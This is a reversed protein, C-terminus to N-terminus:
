PECVTPKNPNNEQLWDALFRLPDEPKTQTAPSLPPHAHSGHDSPVHHTFRPRCQCPFLAPALVRRPAACVKCLATLGRILTSNVNKNLYDAATQLNEPEEIVVPLRFASRRMLPLTPTHTHTHTHVLPSRCPPQAAPAGLLCECDPFFFKSERAANLKSDSGHVANRSADTGFRARLRGLLLAGPHAATAVAAALRGGWSLLLLLLALAALPIPLLVCSEPNTEKARSPLTPGILDRLAQIAGEKALVLALVPGSSITAILHPFFRKGYHEM